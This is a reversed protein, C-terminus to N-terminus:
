LLVYLLRHRRLRNRGSEDKTVLFRFGAFLLMWFLYLERPFYFLFSRLDGKPLLALVAVSAAVFLVAPAVKFM